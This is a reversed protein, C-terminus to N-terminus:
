GRPLKRGLVIAAALALIISVALVAVGAWAGSYWTTFSKFPTDPLAFAWTAYALTAAFMEWLPWTHPYLPIPAPPTVEATRVKAAFVAWVFVPTLALFVWFPVWSPSQNADTKGGAPQLAAVLAVYLTLVETPIYTTLMQLATSIANTQAAGAGRGAGGGAGGGIGGGAGGGARPATGGELFIEREGGGRPLSEAGGAAAAAYERFDAPPRGAPLFDDRRSVAANTMANISM